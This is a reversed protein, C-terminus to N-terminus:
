NQSPNFPTSSSKMEISPADPNSLDIYNMDRPDLQQPLQRLQDLVQVQQAFNPTYTGLHVQGLETTLILNKPDEWNLKTIEVPSEKLVRYIEPWYSQYHTLQGIIKLSPLPFDTLQTYNELPMWIGQEDILGVTKSQRSTMAIAVPFRESVEINLRLPFLQRTVRAQAVPGNEELTQAIEHPELRFVLQPYHIPLIERLAQTTVLKNGTIVVQEPDRIAWNPQVLLWGGGYAIAGVAVTQWLTQVVKLRQRQRLQKRREILEQKSIPQILTM